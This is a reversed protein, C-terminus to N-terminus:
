SRDLLEDIDHAHVDRPPSHHNAYALHRELLARVDAARPDDVAIVGM